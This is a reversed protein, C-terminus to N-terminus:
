LNFIQRTNSYTAESVEELSLNKVEAVKQAVIKVYKPENVEGRHGQPPLYPADTEVLIRDLPIYKAAERTAEASPYTITASFSLLFDAELAKKAFEMDSSFCHIVGRLNPLEKLVGLLEKDGNRNHIILPLRHKIALEAQMRFLELQEALARGGKWDTQDIGCEGIAVITSNAELLKELNLRLIEVTSEMDEHPYIGLTPYLGEYGSATEIAKISDSISTGINIFKKVGEEKAEKLLEETTKTYKEHPLHCHSDILM